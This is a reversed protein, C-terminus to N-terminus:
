RIPREEVVRVDIFQGGKTQKCHVALVNGGPKLARAAEKSIRYTGYQTAYGTLTLAPVGNIFVECDEDHHISLRVHESPAGAVDFSRRIWIEPTTWETGIVAGPTGQAGFGGAGTKWASVDFASAEWGDAPETFTYSWNASQGAAPDLEVVRPFIGRNADRVAQEDVKVVARDYTLLGNCETEVDTTQTYIAASLGPADALAYTNRLLSVYQDTL